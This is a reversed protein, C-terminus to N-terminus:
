LFALRKKSDFWKLFKELAEEPAMVNIKKM